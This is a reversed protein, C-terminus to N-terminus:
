VMRHSFGDYAENIRLPPQTYGAKAMFHPEDRGWWGSQARMKQTEAFGDRVKCPGFEPHIIDTERKNASECIGWTPAGIAGYQQKHHHAMVANGQHNVAHEHIQLQRIRMSETGINDFKRIPGWGPLLRYIDTLWLILILAVISLLVIGVIVGTEQGPTLDQGFM